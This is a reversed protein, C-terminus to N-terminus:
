WRSCRVLGFQAMLLVFFLPLVGTAGILLALGRLGGRRRRGGDPRVFREPVGRWVLFVAAFTIASTCYFPIRYSGTLDALIGGIM